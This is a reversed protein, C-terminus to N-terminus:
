GLRKIVDNFVRLALDKSSDPMSGRGFRSEDCLQYIAAVEQSLEHQKGLAESLRREMESRATGQASLNWKDAFYQNLCRELYDFFEVQGAVDKQHALKKLKTMESLAM